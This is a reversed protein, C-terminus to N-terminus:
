DLLLFTVLIILGVYIGYIVTTFISDTMKYVTILCIIALAILFYIM